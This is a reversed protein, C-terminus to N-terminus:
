KCHGRWKIGSIHFRGKSLCDQRNEEHTGLFLHEPNICARVDCSHCVQMGEPIPGIFTEYSVRHAYRNESM